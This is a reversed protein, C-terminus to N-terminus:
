VSDEDHGELTAIKRWYESIDVSILSALWVQSNAQPNYSALCFM